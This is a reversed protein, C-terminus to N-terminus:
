PFPRLQAGTASDYIPGGGDGPDYPWWEAVEIAGAAYQFCPQDRNVGCHPYPDFGMNLQEGLFDISGAQSSGEADNQLWDSRSYATSFVDGAGENFGVILPIHYKNLEEDYLLYDWTIAFSAFWELDNDQPGERFSIVGEFEIPFPPICVLNKESVNSASMEIITTLEPNSAILRLTKIRWFLNLTKELSLAIPWLSGAGPPVLDNLFDHDFGSRNTSHVVLEEISRPVCWPFLGLHRVSAM